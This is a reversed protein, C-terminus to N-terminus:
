RQSFRRLQEVAIKAEQLFIDMEESTNMANFSIRVAGEALRKKVGCQLLVRSIKGHSCAAGTGIYIGKEALTRLLVEARVGDFSVNVIHPVKQAPLNVYAGDIHKLGELLQMSLKNAKEISSKLDKGGKELAEYFATIGLTNETGPRVSGEQEGGYLLNKLKAGKAAAIAGTGKLANIKHASLTYYDVNGGSLNIETKFLAQVGDSAFLTNPNKAKVAKSLAAIDNLAGTENNVHMISVLATNERVLEAVDSANICFDKPKIYDVEAGMLELHKFMEFVCPHEIASTIYHAKNKTGSLIVTNNSETGGSTFVVDGDLGIISCILSKVKKIEFFVNAAPSYAASPNYWGNDTHKKIANNAAPKTTAANDLYIEM